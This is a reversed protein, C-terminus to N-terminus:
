FDMQFPIEAQVAAKDHFWDEVDLCRKRVLKRYFTWKFHFRTSLWSRM